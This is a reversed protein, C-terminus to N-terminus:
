TLFLTKARPDNNFIELARRYAATKTPQKCVVVEHHIAHSAASVGDYVTIFYPKKM